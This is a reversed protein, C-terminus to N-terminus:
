LLICPMLASDTRGRASRFTELSFTMWATFNYNFDVQVFNATNGWGALSNPENKISLLNLSAEIQEFNFIINKYLVFEFSVM